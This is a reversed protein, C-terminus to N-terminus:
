ADGDGTIGLFVSELSSRASSVESPYIDAEVLARVIASGDVSDVILSENEFRSELGAKNLADM